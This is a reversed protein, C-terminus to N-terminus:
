DSEIIKLAGALPLTCSMAEILRATQTERDCALAAVVNSDKVYLAVFQQQDLEGDVVLNDWESAHGLYEFRKGFHYTWFYPVGAYRKGLGCINQAAIRAQQQAVRWHEIRMPEQNDHLPFAALDGAAYLGPAAQMGADVIVGGDKHLPLGKIFGTAPTVGTGVLV